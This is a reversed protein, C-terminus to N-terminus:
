RLPDNAFYRQKASFSPTWAMREAVYRWVFNGCVPGSSGTVVWHKQFHIHFSKRTFVKKPVRGDAHMSSSVLEVLKRGDPLGADKDAPTEMTEDQEASAEQADKALNKIEAFAAEVENLESEAFAEDELADEDLDDVDDFFGYGVEM